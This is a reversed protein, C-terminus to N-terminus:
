AARLWQTSRQEVEFGHKLYLDVARENDGDVYLTVRSPRHQAMRDLVSGLLARGLGRGAYDPHVGIAYLECSPSLEPSGADRVTKVWAYGATHGAPAEPTGAADFCFILDEPDFWTERTLAHFDELTMKGQEPHSAFAAANVRVWAEAQAPVADDYTATHFGGDYTTPAVPAAPADPLLSPDLTMRLLERVPQFSARSLLARAAPNEGHAWARLEGSGPSSDLLQSLIASGVGNGRADPHVVLDLEGAGVVGLAIVERDTGATFLSLEREGREAAIFAQDSVPPIGDATEAESLLRRVQTMTSTPPAGKSDVGWREALQVDM